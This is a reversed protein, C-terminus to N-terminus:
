VKLFARALALRQKEGGSVKLGREGVHTSYGDPLRLVADHLRAAKAAQEIEEDSADPKGYAINYRITDNFLVVDQPVTALPKRMSTLDWDRVDSGAIRVSGASPDYFRYLLRLITSKGSGSAGVIACSTGAPVEFSVGKLIPMEPRYSFHVNRFSVDYGCTSVPLPLAGPVSKIQMCAIAAKRFRFM